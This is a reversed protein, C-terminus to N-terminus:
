QKENQSVRDLKMNSAINTPDNDTTISSIFQPIYDLNIIRLDIATGKAMGFSFTSSRHAETGVGASINTTGIGTATAFLDQGALLVRIETADETPGVVPLGTVNVTVAANFTPTVAGNSLKYTPSATADNGSINLTVDVGSGIIHIAAGDSGTTDFGVFSNNVFDYSGSSTIELAHGYGTASTDTTNVGIFSTNSINNPTSGAIVYTGGIGAEVTCNDLTGSNLTIAECGIWTTNTAATNGSLTTPGWKQFTCGDLDVNGPANAGKNCSFYGKDYADVSNFFVNTFFATTLGGQISIGTFDSLTNLNTPSNPNKNPNLIVIDSDSYYTDTTSADDLGIGLTGQISAGSSTRECVGYRNLGNDNIDTFSTIGAPAGSDGNYVTLGTGIRISDIAFNQFRSITVGTRITSQAGAHTVTSPLNAEGGFTGATDAGSQRLSAVYCRWGGGPLEDSGGVYYMDYSNENANGALYIRYGGNAATDASSNALNYIWVYFHRPDTTTITQTSSESALDVQTGGTNSRVLRTVSNSGQIFVEDNVGPSSAGGGGTDGIRSFNGATEANTLTTLGVLVQAAAM